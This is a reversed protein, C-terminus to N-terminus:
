KNDLSLWQKRAPNKNKKKLDMKKEFFGNFKM